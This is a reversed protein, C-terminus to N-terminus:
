PRSPRRGEMIDVWIPLALEGGTGGPMIKRPLDFGVWIVALAGLMGILRPDVELERLRSAQSM